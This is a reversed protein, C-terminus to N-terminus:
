GAIKGGIEGRQNDGEGIRIKGKNGGQVASRRRHRVRVRSRQSRHRYLRSLRPPPLRRLLTEAGRRQAKPM